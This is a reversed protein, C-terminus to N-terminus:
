SRENLGSVLVKAENSLIVLSQKFRDYMENSHLDVRLSEFKMARALNEGLGPILSALVDADNMLVKYRLLEPSSNHSIQLRNRREPETSIIIEHVLDLESSSLPANVYQLFEVTSKASIEEIPCDLDQLAFAGPHLHDHFLAALVLVMRASNDFDGHTENILHRLSIVVDQLHYENHYFLKGRNARIHAIVEDNCVELLERRRGDLDRGLVLSSNELLDCPKQRAIFIDGVWAATEKSFIFNNFCFILRARNGVELGVYTVASTANEITILGLGGESADKNAQWKSADASPADDEIDVGLGCPMQYVSVTILGDLSNAEFGYRVVNQVVEGVAIIPLSQDLDNPQVVGNLVDRFWNRIIPLSERNGNFTQTLMTYGM